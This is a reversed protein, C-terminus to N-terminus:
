LEENVEFSALRDETDVSLKGQSLFTQGMVVLYPPDKVFFWDLSIPAVYFLNNFARGSLFEVTSGETVDRVSVGLARIRRPDIAAEESLADWFDQTLLCGTLGTDLVALIPRGGVTESTITTSGNLVLRDVRCVYHDVFDGLPRIDVLRFLSPAVAQREKSQLSTPLLSESSLTLFEKDISFSRTPTGQVTLQSLWTPRYYDKQRPINPNRILGLMTGGAEQELQDDMLGLITRNSRIFSPLPRTRQAPDSSRIQLRAVKWQIQGSQSGYVEETPPYPSDDLVFGDSDRVGKVIDKNGGLVLYPSGTDVAARYVRAKAKDLSGEVRLRVCVTGGSCEELPVKVTWPSVGPDISSSLSLTSATSSLPVPTLSATQSLPTDVLPPPMRPTVLIGSITELTKLFDSRGMCSLSSSSSLFSLLLLWLLIGHQRLVMAPAAMTSGSKHRM